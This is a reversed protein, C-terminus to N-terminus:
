LRRKANILKNHSIKINFSESETHSKKKTAYSRMLYCDTTPNKIVKLLPGDDSIRSSQM